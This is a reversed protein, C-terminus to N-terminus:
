YYTMGDRSCTGEIFDSVLSWDQWSQPGPGTVPIGRAYSLARDHPGQMVQKADTHMCDYLAVWATAEPNPPWGGGAYLCESFAPFGYPVGGGGAAGANM